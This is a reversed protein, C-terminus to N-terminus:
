FKNKSRKIPSGCGSSNCNLRRKTSSIGLPKSKSLNKQQINKFMVSIDQVSMIESGEGRRGGRVKLKGQIQPSPQDTKARTMMLLNSSEREIPTTSIEEVHEDDPNSSENDTKTMVSGAVELSALQATDEQLKLRKIPNELTAAIMWAPLLRKGKKRVRKELFDLCRADEEEDRRIKWTKKGRRM